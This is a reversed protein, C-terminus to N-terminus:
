PQSLRPLNVVAELGINLASRGFTLGVCSVGDVVLLAEVGFVCCDLLEGFRNSLITVQPGTSGEALANSCTSVELESVGEAQVEIVLLFSLRRSNFVNKLVM